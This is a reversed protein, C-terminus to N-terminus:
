PTGPLPVPYAAFARDATVVTLGHQIAQCILLRDFPDRHIPPLDAIRLVSAEDVHLSRILHHDRMRPLFTQPPEPLPLKGLQSKIIAEWLSVVSLFVENGPHRIASRLAEPLEPANRVYWIFIHTDLLLRM